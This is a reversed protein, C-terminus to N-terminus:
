SPTGPSTSESQQQFLNLCRETLTNRFIRNKLSRLSLFKKLLWAWDEPAGTEVSEVCNDFIIPLKNNEQPQTTLVINVQNGTDTEVATHQNLFSVFTLTEEDPLRPAIKLYDNLEVRGSVTPLLIRNIYRLRVVRIQVPSALGIFLRWTREIEPLYDDLGTYPALRNFSFGHARVQVLQKEDAHLFQFAQIGRRVSMQATADPKAEIKTQQIFQVQFKPYEDKFRDRSTEELAALSFAPPMDCDIDIVAEVIPAKTLKLETESM